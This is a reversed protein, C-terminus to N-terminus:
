EEFGPKKKKLKLFLPLGLSVAFLCVCLCVSQCVFLFVCLCPCHCLCLSVSLCVCLSLSLFLCPCNQCVNAFIRSLQPLEEALLIFPLPSSARHVASRFSLLISLSLHVFLSSTKLVPNKSCLKKKLNKKKLKLFLSLGLPVASLCVSLCVSMSVSLCFSVSVLATVSVSHSLCVSVPLFLSFSVFVSKWFMQLVELSCLLCRQLCHLLYLAPLVIYLVTFPFFSPFHFIFM